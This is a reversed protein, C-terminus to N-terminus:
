EEFLVSQFATAVGLNESVCIIQLRDTQQFLKPMQKRPHLPIMWMLNMGKPM